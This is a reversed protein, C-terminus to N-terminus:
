YSGGGLYRKRQLRHSTVLLLFPKRDFHGHTILIHKITYDGCEKVIREPDGGPDVV